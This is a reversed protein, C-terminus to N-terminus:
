LHKHSNYYTSSQYLHTIQPPWYNLSFGLVHNYKQAKKLGYNPTKPPPSNKKKKKAEACTNLPQMQLSKGPHSKPIFDSTNEQM